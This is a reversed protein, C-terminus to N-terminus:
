VRIGFLGFIERMPEWFGEPFSSSGNAEFQLGNEFMAKMFFHECIGQHYEHSKRFGAWKYLSHKKMIEELQKILSSKQIYQKRDRRSNEIITRCKGDELAEASVTIRTGNARFSFAFKCLNSEPMQSLPENHNKLINWTGNGFLWNDDYWLPEDQPIDKIKQRKFINLINM